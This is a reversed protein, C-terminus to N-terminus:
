CNEHGAQVLGLSEGGAYALSSLREGIQGEFPLNKDGVIATGISRLFEGMAKAGSHYVNLLLPVAM